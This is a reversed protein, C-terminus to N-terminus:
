TLAAAGVPVTWAPTGEVNVKATVLLPGLVDRPTVSATVRGFPVATAPALPGRAITTLTTVRATGSRAGPALVVRVRVTVGGAGPGNVTDAARLLWSSVLRVLLVEETLTSTSGCGKGAVPKASTVLRTCTATFFRGMRLRSTMWIVLVLLVGIWPES